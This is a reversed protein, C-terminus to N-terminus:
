ALQGTQPQDYPAACGGRHGSTSIQRSRERLVAGSPRPVRRCGMHGNRRGPLASIINLVAGWDRGAYWHRTQDNWRDAKVVDHEFPNILIDQVSAGPVIWTTGLWTLRPIGDDRRMTVPM